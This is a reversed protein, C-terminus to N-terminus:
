AERAPDNTYSHVGCLSRSLEFPCAHWQNVFM